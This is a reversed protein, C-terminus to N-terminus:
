HVIVFKNLLRRLCADACDIDVHVGNLLQPRVDYSFEQM